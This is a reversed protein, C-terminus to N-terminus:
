GDGALQDVSVLIECVVGEPKWEFRLKGGLDAEIVRNVV